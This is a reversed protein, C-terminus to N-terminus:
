YQVRQVATAKRLVAFLAQLDGQVKASRGRWANFTYSRSADNRDASKENYSSILNVLNFRVGFVELGFKKHEM